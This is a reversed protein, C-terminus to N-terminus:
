DACASLLPPGNGWQFATRASSSSSPSSAASRWSEGGCSSPPNVRWTRMYIYIYMYM